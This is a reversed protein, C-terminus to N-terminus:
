IKKGKKKKKKKKKKWEFSTHIKCSMDPQIIEKVTTSFLTVYARAGKRKHKTAWYHLRFIDPGVYFLLSQFKPTIWSVGIGQLTVCATSGLLKRGTCTKQAVTPPTSFYLVTYLVLMFQSICTNRWRVQTMVSTVRVAPWRVHSLRITLTWLWNEWTIALWKNMAIMM